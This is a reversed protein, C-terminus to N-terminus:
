VVSVSKLKSELASLPVKYFYEQQFQEEKIAEFFINLSKEAELKNIKYDEKFFKLQKEKLKSKIGLKEIAKLGLNLVNNNINLEYALKEQSIQQNKRLLYKVIGVLKLWTEQPSMLNKPQYALALKQKRLLAQKYEFELEHWSHPCQEMIRLSSEIEEIKQNQQRNDIIRREEALYQNLYQNEQQLKVDILRVEYDKKYANYDLEVIADYKKQPILEDQYHGWWIGDFGSPRSRDCIRFHTRIYKVQKGKRDIENKNGIHDFWCNKILLKPVPNGMGCPEVLKLEKFLDKGLEAVTVILDAKIIPKLSNFDLKQRLCQNIAQIFFPINEVPITLGAAYPHGGFRALLKAQSLVLEYLDINNVSRASGRAIEQTSHESDKEKKSEKATTLLITPRGYDQAINNAVLGLVGSEWQNNVLVIVGTSSLDLYEIQKKAEQFVKAQLGKRRTNALDTEEALKHALKPKKSTLLKICFNANGHIRSVANIRPGIGFSIDTPRDGKQKCLDLLRQVGPRKTQQLKQIGKQALYRCDGTLNVLDAILGIAVLDLLEESSQQCLRPFSQNLAEILKYAVAVGSLHYLPHNPSFYRPNLISIVNPRVDPLTHHDTIILDIGLEKAYDIEALNTSGTDCTVILNVGWKALKNIGQCNLGHSERFRNPIYYKLNFNQQFFQGLGEWLVSTATVGDADFDGWIAVKEQIHIAEQFRKIAKTMESNLRDFEFPSTPQYSQCDLFPKVKDLTNIGRQWLIQALYEGNKVHPYTKIEELFWPPIQSYSELQWQTENNMKM